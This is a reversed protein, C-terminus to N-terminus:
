DDDDAIESRLWAKALAWERHVTRPSMSLVEAAEEVCLGGFFRLEVLRAQVPDLASLRQLAEDLSELDVARAQMADFAEDLPLRVGNAGGRKIAGRAKAHNVLIRRMVTAAVALFHAKGQWQVRSQDVLKLFAEHVLATPQLTHGAREERLFSAAMARLEDYVVPLLEEAAASDGTSAATLIATTDSDM